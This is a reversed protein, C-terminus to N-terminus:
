NWLRKLFRHADAASRRPIEEMPMHGVGDYIITRSSPLDREWHKVMKVPVWPDKAGWMLLTDAQIRDIGSCLATSACQNKLLRLVDVYAGRNEASAAMDYCRAVVEDSVKSKDGYISRISQEFFIRPSMVGAIDGILPANIFKMIGPLDQPYGVADILLLRNVNEPFQLAYNWALYGGVSNGAIDINGLGLTQIFQHLFDLFLDRSCPAGKLRTTLGFGPLDLRILRYHPSLLAAWDDWTHLSSLIGHLLLVVPGSGQDCYHARTGNIDIFKSHDATYRRSLEDFSLSRIGLSLASALRRRRVGTQERAHPKRGRNRKVADLPIPVADRGSGLRALEFLEQIERRVADVIRQPEAILNTDASIGVTIEDAYSLISIGTSIDGSRPVWFIMNRIKGGAFYVPQRPGHVNSLVATGKNAFFNATRRAVAGPAAGLAQLFHYSLAPEVSQKMTGTRKQIEKLRALPDQLSVPLATSAIGFRNGLEKQAGPRRLNVPMSVHLDFKGAPPATEMLFRRLAGSIATLLVDNVTAQFTKGIAKIEPLSLPASWAVNKRVNLRGKFTTKPDAPMLLQKGLIAVSEAARGSLGLPRSSDLAAEMGAALSTRARTLTQIFGSLLAPRAPAAPPFDPQPWPADEADDTIAALVQQLAMGDAICHHIRWFVACGGAYNEILHLQWLPKAPDLPKASLDSIMEQLAAKDGSGPLAVRVIHSRVDFVPDADWHPKGIGTRPPTVRQCFRRYRLLRHEITARLREADLVADFEFLATIIMRNRAHDLQYWFHDINSMPQKM